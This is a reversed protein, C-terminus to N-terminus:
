HNTKGEQNIQSKWELKQNMDRVFALFTQRLQRGRGGELVGLKDSDLDPQPM